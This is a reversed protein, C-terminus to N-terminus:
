REKMAEDQYRLFPALFFELLRRKGTKVEASLTMGPQLPVWKDDVLIKKQKLTVRMPYVPGQKEDNVADTTISRVTGEILGYRTYPFSDIKLEVTQGQHIFGIDKNLVMAEAELKAGEPVIVMLAQAPQVVGGITHVQLQQVTGNVPSTLYRNQEREKAKLLTLTGTQVRQQAQQLQQVRERRFEFSKTQRETKLAQLSAKAEQLRSIQVVLSQTTEIQKEKFNLWELKSVHGKKLLQRIAKEQEGFLPELTKLRQIEAKVASISAKRQNVSEQYTTDTSFFYDLDRDLLRQQLVWQPADIEKVWPKHSSMLEARLDPALVKGSSIVKLVVQLRAEDLQAQRLEYEVQKVDVESETPDLKILKQGAKVHQGDEVYIAEVKGIDLPQIAKVQGVPILKGLAVAETDIKGFWAWLVAITFLAMILWVTTRGAPSAPTELIEVAAPLFELEDGKREIHHKENEKEQAKSASWIERIKKLGEFM